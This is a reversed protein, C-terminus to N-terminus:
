VYDRERERIQKYRQFAKREDELGLMSRVSNGRFTHAMMEPVHSIVFWPDHRLAAPVHRVKM